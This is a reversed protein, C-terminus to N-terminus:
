HQLMEAVTRIQMSNQQLILPNSNALPPGHRLHAAPEDARAQISAARDLSSTDQTLLRRVHGILLWELRMLHLQMLEPGAASM